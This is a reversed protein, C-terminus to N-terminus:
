ALLTLQLYNTQKKRPTHKAPKIGNAKRFHRILIPLAPHEAWVPHVFATDASWNVNAIPRTALSSDLPTKQDILAVGSGSQVMWQIDTPTTALCSVEPTIGIEGLMEMLRTHAEPHAEPNRFIKLRKALVLPQIEMQRALPDDARMCVVLPASAVSEVTWQDGSIPLPLVAADLSKEEMRRLLQAPDGGSFQMPCGPFLSAYADSLSRLIEQQVFCSFGIRLPPIEGCHVARAAQIIENRSKVAEIAYSVIMQGAATVHVGDHHRVFIQIGIGDELDKIQKSLSPQALFLREAARTFNLTEAIAAIYKLHRFEVLDFM